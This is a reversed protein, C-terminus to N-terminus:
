GGFVYLIMGMKGGLSREPSFGVPLVNLGGKKIIKLGNKQHLKKLRKLTFPNEKIGPMFLPRIIQWFSYKNPVFTLILGTEKKMTIFNQLIQNQKKPSFHEFLGDSFILDFRNKYKKAFNKDLLDEKLYEKAQNDTNIITLDLAQKSYDLAYTEAKKQIFYNSFFGSGSGADLIKLKPPQDSNQNLHLKKNKLKQTKIIQNLLKLMRKKSFSLKNQSFQPKKDWFYDWNKETTKNKNLTKNKKM